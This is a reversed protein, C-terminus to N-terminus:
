VSDSLDIRVQVAGTCRMRERWASLSDTLRGEAACPSRHGTMAELLRDLLCVNWQYMSLRISAGDPQSRVVEEVEDFTSGYRELLFYVDDSAGGTRHAVPGDLGRDGGTM